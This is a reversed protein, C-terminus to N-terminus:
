LSYKGKLKSVIYLRDADTLAVDFAVIEAVQTRSNSNGVSQLKLGNNSTLPLNLLGMQGVRQWIVQGWSINLIFFLLITILKKM